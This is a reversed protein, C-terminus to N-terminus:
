HKKVAAYSSCEYGCDHLCEWMCNLQKDCRLRPPQQPWRKPTQCMVVSTLVLVWLSLAVSAAVDLSRGQTSQRQVPVVASSLYLAGLKVLLLYLHSSTSVSAPSPADEDAIVTPTCLSVPVGPAPSLTLPIMSPASPSLSIIANGKSLRLETIQKQPHTILTFASQLDAIFIGQLYDNRQRDSLGDPLLQFMPYQLSSSNAISAMM